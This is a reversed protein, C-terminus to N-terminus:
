TDCDIWACKIAQPDAINLYDNGFSVSPKAEPFIRRELDELTDQFGQNIEVSPRQNKVLNYAQRLLFEEQKMMYQIAAAPARSNGHYSFILVRRGCRKSSDVFKNIEDFYQEIDETEKDDLRIILRSRFHRSDNGCLCPCHLKKNSPVQSASMNSMDVLSDIKLKCLLPENYASEVSGIYVYDLLQSVYENRFMKSQLCTSINLNLNSGTREVRFPLTPSRSKGINPQDSYSRRLKQKFVSLNNKELEQVSKCQHKSISHTFSTTFLFDSKPSSTPPLSLNRISTKTSSSVTLLNPTIREVKTETHLNASKPRVAIDVEIPTVPQNLDPCSINTHIAAKKQGEKLSSLFKIPLLHKNVLSGFKSKTKISTSPDTDTQNESNKTNFFLNKFSRSRKSVFKLRREEVSVSSVIDDKSREATTEDKNKGKSVCFVSDTQKKILLPNSNDFHHHIGHQACSNGASM